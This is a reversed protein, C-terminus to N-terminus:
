YLRVSPLSKKEKMYSFEIKKKKKANTSARLLVLNKQKEPVIM